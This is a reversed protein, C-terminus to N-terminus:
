IPLADLQRLKAVAAPELGATDFRSALAPDQAALETLLQGLDHQDTGTGSTGVNHVLVM